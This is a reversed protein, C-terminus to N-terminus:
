QNKIYTSFIKINIKISHDSNGLKRTLKSDSFLQKLNQLGSAVFDNWINFYM